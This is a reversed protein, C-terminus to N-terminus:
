AAERYYFNLMGALRERRQVAQRHLAVVNPPELLHNDLGQHNRQQLYHKEYERLAYRLTPSARFVWTPIGSLGAM